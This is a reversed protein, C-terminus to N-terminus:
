KKQNPKGETDRLSKAARGWWDLEGFLKNISSIVHPNETTGDEKVTNTVSGVTVFQKVPICGMESLFPRAAAAALAGGHPGMAYALIGSPKFEFSPPPLHDMLNTLGPPMSRNYEATLIIYADAEVMIKNLTHLYEPAQSPDAYFHLPKKLVPLNYAEPDVIQLTHGKPKLINDFQKKLLTLMREANRGERVSSVICVFKLAM